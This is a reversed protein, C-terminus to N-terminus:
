LSRLNLLQSSPNKSRLSLWLSIPSLRFEKKAFHSLSDTSCFMGSSNDLISFYMPSDISNTSSPQVPTSSHTDINQYNSNTGSEMTNVDPDENLIYSIPIKSPTEIQLSSNPISEAPTYQIPSEIKDDDLPYEDLPICERSYCSMNDFISNPVVYKDLNGISISPVDNDNVKPHSKCYKKKDSWFKNGEQTIVKSFNSCLLNFHKEGSVSIVHFKESDDTAVFKFSHRVGFCSTKLRARGPKEPSFFVFKRTKHNGNPTYVITSYVGRYDPTLNKFEELLEYENLTNEIDIKQKKSNPLVSKSTVKRKGLPSM